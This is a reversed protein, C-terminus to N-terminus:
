CYCFIANIESPSCPFRVSFRNISVKCRTAVVIPRNIYVRRCRCRYDTVLTKGDGDDDADDGTLLLLLLLLDVACHSTIRRGAPLWLCGYQM